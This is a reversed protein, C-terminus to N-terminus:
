GLSIHRAPLLPPVASGEQAQRHHVTLNRLGARQNNSPAGLVLIDIVQKRRM